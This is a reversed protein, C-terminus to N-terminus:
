NEDLFKIELTNMTQIAEIFITRTLEIYSKEEFKFYEMAKKVSKNSKSFRHAVLGSRLDQLNRLFKILQQNSSSKSELFKELKSIGKINNELNLGKKLEKENLSDITIKVLSLIQDCFSKVNNTTPIHLSNFHHEDEKALPKYFKWGYKEEWKKNFSNFKHKFYLDPTEPHEAWNGEIMTRYYSHSMGEKPIINYQKWHLQEKHPLMRLEVLFVPVYDDVNNDIKLSFFDSRVRFPTVEYKEPENYYKNLVEKKFYTLVFYKGNTKECNQYELEGNKDYGIIFEEYKNEPSFHFKNSKSKDYKLITKGHIWSQSRKSDFPLPQIYHNYNFVNGMHNKDQSSVNLEALSKFPKRIFDFCISFHVKRVSIYEMLYRLKVKVSHPTVEIVKELDGLEDIYFYQRNKKTKSKEYLNFYLVFEESVDIYEDHEGNLKFSRFFLFPEIHKDAYTEYKHFEKGNKFSTYVSPKGESGLDIRWDNDKLYEKLKRSHVICCYILSEDEEGNTNDYIKIWGKEIFNTNVSEVIDTFLFKNTTM